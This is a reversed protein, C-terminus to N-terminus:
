NKIVHISVLFPVSGGGRAFLIARDTGLNPSSWKGFHQAARLIKEPLLNHFQEDADLGAM